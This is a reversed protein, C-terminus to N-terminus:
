KKKRSMLAIAWVGLFLGMTGVVIIPRRIDTASQSWFSGVAILITWLILVSFLIKLGRSRAQTESTRLEENM